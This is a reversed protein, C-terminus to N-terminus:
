AVLLSSQAVQFALGLGPRQLVQRSHGVAIRALRQVRDFDGRQRGRGIGVAHDADGQLHGLLTDLFLRHHVVAVLIRMVVRDGSEDLRHAPAVDVRRQIPQRLHDMGPLIGSKNGTADNNVGGLVYAQGVGHRQDQGIRRELSGFEDTPRLRADWDGLRGNVDGARVLAVADDLRDVGRQRIDAGALGDRHWAVQLIRMVGTCLFQAVALSVLVRM